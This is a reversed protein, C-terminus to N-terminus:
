ARLEHERHPGRGGHVPLRWRRALELAAGSHDPHLHTLLIAALRTGRGFLTEAAERITRAQKPWAADVLVWGRGSRVLYVNAETLGRGTELRFVGPAVEEPRPQRRAM